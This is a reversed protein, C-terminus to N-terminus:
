QRESRTMSLGIKPTNICSLVRIRLGLDTQASSPMDMEVNQRSTLDPLNFVTLSESRHVPM